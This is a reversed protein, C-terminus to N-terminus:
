WSSGAAGVDRDDEFGGSLRPDPRPQVLMGVGFGEDDSASPRREGDTRLLQLTAGSLNEDNRGIRRVLELGSGVPVLTYVDM